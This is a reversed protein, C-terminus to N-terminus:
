QFKQDRPFLMPTFVYPVYTAREILDDMQPHQNIKRKELFTLRTSTVPMKLIIRHASFKRSVDTSSSNPPSPSPPRYFLRGELSTIGWNSHQQEAAATSTSHQHGCYLVNRRTHTHTHPNM